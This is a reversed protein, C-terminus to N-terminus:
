LVSVIDKYTVLIMLLILVAFGAAHIISERRPDVRVHRIRELALFFLRGGDLAPIPLVNLVALNVSLMGVFQLFYSVGLSRSDEAFFYIGVPGSVELGRGGDTALRYILMSLGRVTAVIANGTTRAGEIPAWYWPARTLVIRAMGIGLPGEGEPPSARPTVAIEHLDGLRRVTMRVEEGRYADMFQRVDEETEVRLTLEPAIVAPASLELIQDGFRLGATDAPSGSVVNIISVPVAANQDEAIAPTGFAAGASFLVWALVVNMGVGAGLIIGRQWIPRTIFSETEGEGEGHEGFIKVFGGFPFANLSYRVGNKMWSFLRPPFGMGFEDVRVGLRRASYFHGWEHALILVSVFVIVLILTTM